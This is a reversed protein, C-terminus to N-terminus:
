KVAKLTTIVIAGDAKEAHFAVKEGVKVQDLMAVEKVRFVMTMGPMGLNKIEGHKLTIKQTDKDIKRVEGDTMEVAAPPDTKLGSPNSHDAAQAQATISFAAGILLLVATFFKSIKM